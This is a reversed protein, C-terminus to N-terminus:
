TASEEHHALARPASAALTPYDTYGDAGPGYVPEPRAANLSAGTRIREVLDPNAIYNRGFAILDAQGDRVFIEGHTTQNITTDADDNM